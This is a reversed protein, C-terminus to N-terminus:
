CPQLIAPKNLKHAKCSPTRRLINGMDNQYRTFNPHVVINDIVMNIEDGELSHRDWDGMVVNWIGGGMGEIM